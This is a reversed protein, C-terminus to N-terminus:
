SDYSSNYSIGDPFIGFDARWRHKSDILYIRLKYVTYDNDRLISQLFWM